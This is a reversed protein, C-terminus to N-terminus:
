KFKDIIKDLVVLFLDFLICGIVGGIIAVFILLLM